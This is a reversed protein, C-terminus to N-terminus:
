VTLTDDNQSLVHVRVACVHSSPGGVCTFANAIDSAYRRIVFAVAAVTHACVHMYEPITQQYSM